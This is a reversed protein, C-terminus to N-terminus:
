QVAKFANVRGHVWYNGTGNIQDATSEITQRIQQHTKGQSSVLAAIGAVFPAAMSTGNLSDYKGNLVTSYIKTGPAAVDVWHGYNSFRARKDNEDTAAVALANKYYAPYSPLQTNENGAAAVVVSGKSWAYNVAQELAQSYFSGGLSLNVVEAGKDAAETIGAAVSSWSGSGDNDLVRIALIKSKPAMGAMGTQNDTTAAAIGSVHTGHLNGDMPDADNDVHDHGKIVKGVLDPHNYDVGTDVVAIQVEPLGQTTDWAKEASVKKLGWQKVYDPDNPIHSAQVTGNVEAYQVTKLEQLKNIVETTQLTNKLKIVHLHLAPNVHIVTGVDLQKIIKKSQQLSVHKKFSVIVENTNTKHTAVAINNQAVFITGVSLLLAFIICVTKKM